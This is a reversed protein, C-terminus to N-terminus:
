RLINSLGLQILKDMISILLGVIVTVVVVVATQKVITNKDPWIIRSFEAKLGTWWSKIRNEKKKAEAM